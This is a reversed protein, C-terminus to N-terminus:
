PPPVAEDVKPDSLKRRSPDLPVPVVRDPAPRRTDNRWGPVDMYARTDPRGRQAKSESAKVRMEELLRLERDIEQELRIRKSRAFWCSLAIWLSASVALVLCAWVLLRRRMASKLSM